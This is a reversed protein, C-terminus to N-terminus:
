SQIINAIVPENEIHIRSSINLVEQSYARLQGKIAEDEIKNAIQKLRRSVNALYKKDNAKRFDNM